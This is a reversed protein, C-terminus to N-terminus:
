KASSSDIAIQIIQGLPMVRLTLESPPNPMGTVPTITVTTSEEAALNPTAIEVKLATSVTLVQITVPGPLSNKLAVIQSKPKAPDLRVRNPDAHVGDMIGATSIREVLKTLDETAADAKSNTRGFPTDFLKSQDVYWCWKGDDIKWYSAFPVDMIKPDAGPIIIQMQSLLMVRANKFDPSYEIEVLKFTRIDPKRSEYYFDKTDVAVLQEAQRYKRDAQLQYFDQIRNRLAADVDGPPGEASVLLALALSLSLVRISTKM